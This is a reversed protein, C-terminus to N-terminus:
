QSVGNIKNKFVKSAKFSVSRRAVILAPENTKPNRGMREEKKQVSFTGFGTIKMSEESALTKSIEGLVEEIFDLAESKTVQFEATIADAIDSRTLTKIKKKM